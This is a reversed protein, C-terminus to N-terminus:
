PSCYDKPNGAEIMVSFKKGFGLEGLSKPDNRSIKVQGLFPELAPHGALSNLTTQPGVESDNPGPSFRESIGSIALAAIIQGLNKPPSQPLCGLFKESARPGQVEAFLSACCITDKNKQKEPLLVFPM